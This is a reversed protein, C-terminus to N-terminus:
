PSALEWSLYALSHPRSYDQRCKGIQGELNRIQSTVKSRRSPSHTLLCGPPLLMGQEQCYEEAKWWRKNQQTLHNLWQNVLLM